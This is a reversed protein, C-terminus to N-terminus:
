PTPLRAGVSALKHAPPRRPLSQTRPHPVFIPIEPLPPVLELGGGVGHEARGGSRPFWVSSGRPGLSESEEGPNKERREAKRVRRLLNQRGPLRYAGPQVGVHRRPLRQSASRSLPFM